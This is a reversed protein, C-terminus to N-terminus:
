SVCVAQQKTLGNEDFQCKDMIAKKESLSVHGSSVLGCLGRSRRLYRSRFIPLHNMVFGRLALWDRGRLARKTIGSDDFSVNRLTKFTSCDVELPNQEQSDM